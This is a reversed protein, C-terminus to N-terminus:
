WYQGAFEWGNLNASPPGNVRLYSYGGFLEIKDGLGQANASLSFLFVLGLLLSLRRVM